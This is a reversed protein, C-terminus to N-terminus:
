YFLSGPLLFLWPATIIGMAIGVKQAAEKEIGFRKCTWSNFLYILFGIVIVVLLYLLVTKPDDWIRYASLIYAESFFLVLAVGILDAIFGFIWALFILRMLKKRSPIAQKKKLVTYIVIGDILLNGIVIIFVWPPIFM